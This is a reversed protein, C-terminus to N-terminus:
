YQGGLPRDAEMAKLLHDQFIIIIVRQEAENAYLFQRAPVKWTTQKQILQGSAAFAKTHAQLSSYIQAMATSGFHQTPAYSKPTGVEVNDKSVTQSFSQQLAGTAILPKMSQGKKKRRARSYRSLPKWAAGSEDMGDKFHKIQREILYGGTERMAHIPNGAFEKMNDLIRRPEEMDIHIKIGVPM